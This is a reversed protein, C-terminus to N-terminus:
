FTVKFWVDGEEGGTPSATSITFSSIIANAQDLLDEAEAVQQVATTSASEAATQAALATSASSSAAQASQEADQAYADAANASGEASNKASEAAAIKENLEQVLENFTNQDPGPTSGYYFSTKVSDTTSETSTPPTQTQTQDPENSGNYFFSSTAM